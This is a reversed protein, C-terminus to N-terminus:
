RKENIGSSSLHEQQYQNGYDGRTEISGNLKSDMITNVEYTQSPSSFATTPVYGCSRAVLDIISAATPIPLKM